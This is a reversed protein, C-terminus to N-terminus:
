APLSEQLEIVTGFPDLVYCLRYRPTILIESVARGGEEEIRAVLGTIDRCPFCVHFTGPRQWDFPWGDPGPGEGPAPVARAHSRDPVSAFEFLEIDPGTDCTLTAVRCGQWAPGFLALMVANRPETDIPEPGRVLELGIVDRYFRIAGQLDSTTVGVHGRPVTPVDERESM